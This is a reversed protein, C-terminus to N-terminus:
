GLCTAGGCRLNGLSEKLQEGDRRLTHVNIPKPTTYADSRTVLLSAYLCILVTRSRKDKERNTINKKM